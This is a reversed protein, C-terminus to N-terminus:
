INKKSIVFAPITKVIDTFGKINKKTKLVNRLFYDTIEESKGSQSNYEEVFDVIKRKDITMNRKFRLNYNIGNHIYNRCNSNSFAKAVDSWVSYVINKGNIDVIDNLGIYM